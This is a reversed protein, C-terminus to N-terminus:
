AGRGPDLAPGLAPVPGYGFGLVALLVVSCALAAVIGTGRGFRRARRRAQIM